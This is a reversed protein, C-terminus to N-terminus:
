PTNSILISWLCSNVVTCNPEYDQSMIASSLTIVVSLGVIIRRPSVRLSAGCTSLVLTKEDRRMIRSVGSRAANKFFRPEPQAKTSHLNDQDALISSSTPDLEQARNIEFFAQQLRGETGLANALWLHTLPDTPNLEIAAYSESATGSIRSAGFRPLAWRVIRRPL